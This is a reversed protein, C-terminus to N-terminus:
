SNNSYIRDTEVEFGCGEDSCRLISKKGLRKITMFNGCQPCKEKSAMDWTMFRCQPYNACGLYKKKGKRTKKVIVNGGCRPCQVGAEELIPKTNRCVPFGPCALFKGYRGSKIVMNRGCKDCVVDTEEDPIKVEGILSDAKKLKSEFQPYFEYLVDRWDKKGEEVTDLKSEMQATFEVDVIESFHEKMIGTVIKGLETPIFVKGDKEVYGRALITSIIPAYTSPRGIGKEELEKVLSAETYRSPPKTFHQEPVLKDARLLEGENLEPVEVEKDEPEEDTEETYVAMFGPFRLKSGNAKFIYGASEMIASVTDYVAAAMRSAIFREWILKYLRYQDRNLSSKVKDPELDVHTPRIAEHADQSTAKNKYQIQKEPLYNKGYRNEIFKAAEAAAEDSIRRSDTRMYTILGIAGEDKIDVGEYLQQAIMMTRTTSFGFRRSAEQQLTSTIFPPAPLKSKTGKKVSSVTFERGKLESLIKDVQEKNKLSIKGGKSGFFRAEFVASSDAKKLLAIINWYEEPIFKEIEEERDCILRAAVSQVRGASLGKKIKRWLIPSIKYGVIRDLVRRAQQAGVLKMDIGRPSKIAQKVAKETIENFTIRCKKSEDIDLLQALHWSIAEGERDPDTALYVNSAKQAEKKLNSIVDGKGRITIYKPEFGNDPDVGLQSKPLDRVHGISAEIKYNKGLFKKISKVKGPSEVIVLNKAM